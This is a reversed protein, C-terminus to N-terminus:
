QLLQLVGQPMSNAQALMSQAAQALINNKTYATMEKAMNVDRIQSEASTINETTADLNNLTHDLRNQLAGLKGRQASVKNVAAKITAIADGAADQTSLDLGAIGIGKSSMDKIAVTVKQFSDNTDGIQLTLGKGETGKMMLYTDTAGNGTAWSASGDGQTINLGTAKAIVGAMALVDNDGDITGAAAVEVYNNGVGADALANKIDESTFDLGNDAFLFKKGNVEFIANEITEKTGDWINAKSLDFVNESAIAQTVTMEHSANTLVGSVITDTTFGTLVAADAGKEVTDFTFKTGATDISVNFNEKVNEDAAFDAQAQLSVEKFTLGSLTIDNGDQDTVIKNTADKLTYTIAKQQISGAKDTYNLTFTVSDGVTVLNPTLTASNATKMVYKGATPATITGALGKVTADAVSDLSGDLLNIGNFNTAQSIRDIEDLIAETEEQIAERDVEEQYTGNASQTALETLRTLMSNVETLAGEATQVLSIGDNANDYAKELGKIQSRMKESIALGAADDAASNIRYGSSLKELNGALANNNRTYNTLSNMAPINHQIRM